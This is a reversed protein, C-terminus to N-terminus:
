TVVSRSSCSLPQTPSLQADTKNDSDSLQLPSRSTHPGSDAMATSNPRRPIQARHHLCLFPAVDFASVSNHQNPSIFALARSWGNTQPNSQDVCSAPPHPKRRPKDRAWGRAVRAVRQSAWSSM